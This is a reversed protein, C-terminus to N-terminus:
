LLRLSILFDQIIQFKCRNYIDALHVTILHRIFCNKLDNKSRPFTKKLMAMAKKASMVTAPIIARLVCGFVSAFEPARVSDKLVASLPSSLMMLWSCPLLSLCCRDQCGARLYGPAFFLSLMLPIYMSAPALRNMRRSTPERLARSSKLFLPFHIMAYPSLKYVPFM